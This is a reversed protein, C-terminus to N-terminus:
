NIPKSVLLKFGTYDAQESARMIQKMLMFDHAKDMEMYVYRTKNETALKPEDLEGRGADASKSMQLLAEYVPRVAGQDEYEELLKGDEIKAVSKNQVIIENKTVKIVPIADLSIFTKSDPLQLDKIDHSVPEASFTMLLFTIIISFIDLMPMLNLSIGESNDNGVSAM